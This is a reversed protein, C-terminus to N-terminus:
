KRQKVGTISSSLRLTTTSLGSGQSPSTMHPYSTLQRAGARSLTDRELQTLLIPSPITTTSSSRRPSQETTLFSHLSGNEAPMTTETYKTSLESDSCWCDFTYGTNTPEPLVVETNYDQTIPNCESGGDVEFTITYQNIRWHAYLISNETVKM